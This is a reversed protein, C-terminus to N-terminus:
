GRLQIKKHVDHSFVRTLQLARPQYSPRRRRTADTRWWSAAVAAAVTRGGARGGTLEDAVSAVPDSSRPPPKERSAARHADSTRANNRRMKGRQWNRLWASREHCAGSRTRLALRLGVDTELSYSEADHWDRWKALPQQIEPRAPYDEDMYYSPTRTTEELEGFPFRNVM